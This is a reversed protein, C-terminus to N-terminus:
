TDPLLVKIGYKVVSIFLRIHAIKSSYLCNNEILASIIKKPIPASINEDQSAGSGRLWIACFKKKVGRDFKRASCVPGGFGVM